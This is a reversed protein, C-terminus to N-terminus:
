VKGRKKKRKKRVKLRAEQSIYGRQPTKLGSEYFLEQPNTLIKILKNEKM